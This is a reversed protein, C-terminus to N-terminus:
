RCIPTGDLSTADSKILCYWPRVVEQLGVFPDHLDTSALPIDIPIQTQIDVSTDVPIVLNLHIPLRAGAPLIIDAPGNINVIGANIRVSARLPTDETLVVVTDTEYPLDFQVPVDQLTVPVTVRIHARDMKEFNSYLGGLLTTGANRIGGQLAGLRNFAILLILILVINVLMSLVSAITWFTPLLQLSRKKRPARPAITQPAPSPSPSPPSARMWRPSATARKAARLIARLRERPTPKEPRSEPPTSANM